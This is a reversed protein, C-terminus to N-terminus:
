YANYLTGSEDAATGTNAVITGPIETYIWGVGAADAAEVTTDGLAGGLIGGAGAVPLGPLARLYPGYKFTADKTASTNGADDSFTTLQADFSDAAPFSGGHEAAYLDISNRLAALDGRLASENAGRAGRSIRPVAIAAIVGIIVVVIVLEVLSFARMRSLTRMM